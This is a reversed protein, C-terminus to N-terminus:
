MVTSIVQTVAGRLSSQRQKYRATARNFLASTISNALTTASDGVGSAPIFAAGASVGGSVIAVVSAWAAEKNSDHKTTDELIDSVTSIVAAYITGMRIACLEINDTQHYPAIHASEDPLFMDILQHYRTRKHIDNLTSQERIFSVLLDHYPQIAELGWKTSDPKYYDGIHPGNALLRRIVFSGVIPFLRHTRIDSAVNARAVESGFIYECMDIDHRICAVLFLATHAHVEINTWRRLARESSNSGRISTPTYRLHIHRFNVDTHSLNKVLASKVEDLLGSHIEFLPVPRSTISRQESRFAKNTFAPESTSETTLFDWLDDSRYVIPHAVIELYEGRAGSISLDNRLGLYREDETLPWGEATEWSTSYPM